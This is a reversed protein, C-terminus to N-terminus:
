DEEPDDDCRCDDYEYGCGSCEQVEEPDTEIEIHGLVILGADDEYRCEFPRDFEVLHMGTVNDDALEVPVLGILGADVPFPGEGSRGWYQGDGYATSIGLVPRGDLEALLYRPENQYDAAELWEMWRDNPVAYCPDGVWYRGAPMTVSGINAKAKATM